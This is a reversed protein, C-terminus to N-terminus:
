KKKRKRLKLIAVIIVIGVAGIIIYTLGNNGILPITTRSGSQITRNGTNSLVFPVDEQVVRRIGLTDTYSIEVTLNNNSTNTPNTTVNLARRNTSSFNVAPTIEFTALTYDGANLNGIISSSTGTVRFNEQQPITVVVSQATNAGINAIALTSSDQMIVTFDTRPNSVSVNFTVINYTSGDGISYKLKIENDGNIADKDVRVKYNVLFANNGNQLGYVTGLETVASIGLDLSFPYEPILELTVNQASNTGANEIKFLLDDYAGPDAPSPNQNVLTTKIYATNTFITGSTTNFVDASAITSSSLISVLILLYLIKKM